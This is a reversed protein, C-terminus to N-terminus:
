VIFIRGFTLCLLHFITTEMQYLQWRGVGPMTHLSPMGCYGSSVVNKYMFHVMVSMHGAAETDPSGFLIGIEGNGMGWYFM